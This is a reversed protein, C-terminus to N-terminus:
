LPARVSSWDCVEAVVHKDESRLLLRVCASVAPASTLLVM